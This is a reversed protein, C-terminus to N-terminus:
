NRNFINRFMAFPDGIEINITVRSRSKILKYLIQYGNNIDCFKDHADRCGANKDPHYEIVLRRYAKKLDQITANDSLEFLKYYRSQM